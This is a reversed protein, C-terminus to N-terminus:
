SEEMCSLLDKAIADWDMSDTNIIRTALDSKGALEIFREQRMIYKAISDKTVKEGTSSARQKLRAEAQSPSITLM